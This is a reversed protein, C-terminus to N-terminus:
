ASSRTSGRATHRPPPEASPVLARMPEKIGVSRSFNRLRELLGVSGEQGDGVRVRGSSDVVADRLVLAKRIQGGWVAGAAPGAACAGGTGTKGGIGLEGVVGPEPCHQLRHTTAGPAAAHM